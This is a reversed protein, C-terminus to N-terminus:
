VRAPEVKVIVMAPLGPRDGDLVEAIAVQPNAQPRRRHQWVRYQGPRARGFHKVATTAGIAKIACSPGIVQKALRPIVVEQPALPVVPYSPPCPIVLEVPPRSRDGRRAAGAM